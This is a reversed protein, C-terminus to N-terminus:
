VAQGNTEEPAEPTPEQQGPDGAFDKIMERIRSDLLREL